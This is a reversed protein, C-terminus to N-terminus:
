KKNVEEKLYKSLSVDEPIYSAHTLWYMADDFDWHYKKELKEAAWILYEKM